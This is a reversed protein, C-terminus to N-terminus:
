GESGTLAFEVEIVEMGFWGKKSSEAAADLDSFDHVDFEEDDVDKANLVAVAASEKANEADVIETFKANFLKIGKDVTALAVKPIQARHGENHIWSVGDKHVMRNKYECTFRPGTSTSEYGKVVYHFLMGLMSEPVAGEYIEETMLIDKEVLTLERKITKISGPGRLLSM